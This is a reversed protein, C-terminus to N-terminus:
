NEEILLSPLAAIRVGQFVNVIDKITDRNLVETEGSGRVTYFCLRDDQLFLSISCKCSYRYLFSEYLTKMEAQTLEPLTMFISHCHRELVKAASTRVHESEDKLNDTLIRIFPKTLFPQNGIATVVEMFCINQEQLVKILVHITHEPLISQTGLAEAIYSKVFIDSNDSQVALTLDMITIGPLKSQTRLINAASVKTRQDDTDNQLISVLASIASKPLIGVAGLAKLASNRLDKDGDELASTLAPAAPELLKPQTALAGAASKKVDLVEDQLTAVLASVAFEPLKLQTGLAKVTSVRVNSGKSQLADVLADITSEPLSTLSCLAEASIRVIDCEDQLANVLSTIASEPFKSPANSAILGLVSAALSRAHSDNGRLATIQVENFIERPASQNDLARVSARKVDDDEHQLASFLAQVAHEPLVSQIGFVQAASIKARPNECNLTSILALIASEPLESLLSITEVAANRVRDCDDLLASVLITVTSEPLTVRNRAVINYLVHLTMQKTGSRRAHAAFRKFLISEDCLALILALIALESLPIQARCSITAMAYVEFSRARPNSSLLASTLKPMTSEPLYDQNGLLQAPSNVYDFSEDELASLLIEIASEPLATQGCLADVALEKNEKDGDHLCSSLAEITSSTLNRHGRLAVLVYKRAKENLNMVSVLIEQPFASYSGLSRESGDNVFQAKFDGHYMEMDFRLWEIMEAELRKLAIENLRPRTEKLCEALLQQHRGGILDRPAGQLLDFFLELAEGKLQGAVMRWVIEYRPDYKHQQVFKATQTATMSLTPSSAPTPQKILFHRALWTAAFYEQFTLHLFHWAHRSQDKTADLDADTTHLFSTQKLEDLLQHPLFVQSARVRLQDLEEIADILISEEFEIKHDLMGKFALYGFYEGEIAMMEDLQSPRLKNIQRMGLEKGAASKQLRVGDKRWLKMAMLQYLETM